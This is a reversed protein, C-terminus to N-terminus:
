RADELYDAEPRSGEPEEFQYDWYRMVKPTDQGDQGLTLTAYCGAPLTHVRKLLTGDTFFNQFTFYELLAERDIEARFSPHPRFAKLESAFLFTSGVMCYYLPKIGYRDRALTLRKNERDWLAFAFMGNLRDLAGMGWEALACLLVETDTRSRFQHGKTELEMRLERFNYIEGNYSIVFRGDPTQMPQHGAPSLDIISLRRHGLGIPGEIWQGEGDPGRHAVEDTMRQLTQPSVPEGNLNLIGVVGCM